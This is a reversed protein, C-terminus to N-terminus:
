PKPQSPKDCPKPQSPKDCPQPLDVYVTKVIPEPRVIEYIVPEPAQAAPAAPAKEKKACPQPVSGSPKVSVINNQTTLFNGVIVRREMPSPYDEKKSLETWTQGDNSGQLTWSVPDYMTSEDSTTWYYKAVGEPHNLAIVLSDGTRVSIGTKVQEDVARNADGTGSELYVQAANTNSLPLEQDYNNLLYFGSYKAPGNGLTKLVTFKFYNYLVPMSAEANDAVMGRGDVERRMMGHQEMGHQDVEEHREVEVASACVASLLILLIYLFQAM